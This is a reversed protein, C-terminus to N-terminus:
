NRDFFKILSDFIRVEFIESISKNFESFFLTKTPLIEIISSKFEKFEKSVMIINKQFSILNREYKQVIDKLNFIEKEKLDIVVEKEKLTKKFNLEKEKIIKKYDEIM